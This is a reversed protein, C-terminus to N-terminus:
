HEDAPAEQMQPNHAFYSARLRKKARTLRKKATEQSVGTIEAIEVATFGHVINLLLIAATQPSLAIFCARLVVSELVTDEFPRMLLPLDDHNETLADLSEWRILRRRRLASIARWYAANFLWRRMDDQAGHGDFPASARQAVRWVDCFVDQVIDRAQENDSIIGRAFSYLPWQYRDLLDAFAGPVLMNPASADKMSGGSENASEADDM